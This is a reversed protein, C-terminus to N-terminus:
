SLQITEYMHPVIVNYGLQRFREARALCGQEEGHVLIIGKIKKPDPAVKALYEVAENTDLHCSYGGIREVRAKFQYEKRGEEKTWIKITPHKEKGEELLRGLTGEAQYGTQLLITNEDEISDVLYKVIGGMDWMGSAGIIMHPGNQGILAKADEGQVYILNPFKFPNEKDDSFELQSEPNLNEIHKKIIRNVEKATGSTFYIKYDKPLKGQEYLHFLDEVIMQTRMISFAACVIRKGDRYSENILESLRRKSDGIEHNKDGYTSEMIIWDPTPIDTDPQRILESKKDLRGLDGTYLIRTTKGEDEIELLTQASGIIHGADFLTAKVGPAIDQTTRYDLSAYNGLIKELDEKQLRQKAWEGNQDKLGKVEEFSSRQSQSLQLKAFDCTAPTAFIRTELDTGELKSQVSLEMYMGLHDDHGHSNVSAEIQSIPFGFKLRDGRLIEDLDRNKGHFSRDYVKGCDLLIRRNDNITIIHRSGAVTRCAGFGTYTLTM